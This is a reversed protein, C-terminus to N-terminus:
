LGGERMYYYDGVVICVRDVGYGEGEYLLLWYVCLSISLSVGYEM